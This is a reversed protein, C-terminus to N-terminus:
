GKSRSVLQKQNFESRLSLNHIMSIYMKRTPAIGRKKMERFVYLQMQCYCLVFTLLSAM